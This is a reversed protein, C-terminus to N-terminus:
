DNGRFTGPDSTRCNLKRDVVMISSEPCSKPHVTGCRGGLRILQPHESADSNAHEAPAPAGPDFDHQSQEAQVAKCIM